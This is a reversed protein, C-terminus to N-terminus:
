RTLESSLAAHDSGGWGTGGDRWVRSSRSVRRAAANPALLLHDIAQGSGQFYYTSQASLPLDDALRILGGDNTLADLPPSGPTDNLDGALLVIADPSRAATEMAIRRSVQAEALRRPPDDSSKAKFHAAFVIVGGAHVELLERSFTTTTGDPLVLPEDARHRVVLDIPAKALVAVDVSAVTSIEGLVGHIGDLRALLADLCAQTEIEQLSIVDADLARIATAIQTARQEFFAPSPQAEYDDSECTGSECVTDFMRRVNFTAVRLTPAADVAVREERPTRCAAGHSAALGVVALLPLLKM